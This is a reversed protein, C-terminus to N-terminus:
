IKFLNKLPLIKEYDEIKEAHPLKDLMKRLYDFPELGNAKATQILSYWMGSAVAGDVSNSFLWNKRGIAFPRIHNEILINSMNLRGDKLYNTLFDFQNLTYNVAKGGVSKPTIKGKLSELWSKLEDWIPKSEKLRIEYKQESTLDKIRKEIKYLKQFIILGKKGIGKGSSTKFANEFKRRAHDSCGLRTLNPNLCVKSYGEYGDTQLYGKFGSLLEIPVSGSRTPAYDYLIIPNNGPQYRVWMYSNTTAKKGKEKLVQVTTEDMQLYDSSLVTEQLLNYLPIVKLSVDIVWRAMTQRPIQIGYRKFIEEQRYLPLSDLYKSVIIAAMLNPTLISKPILSPPPPANHIGEKCHPCAYKKRITKLVKFKAPIFELKESTEEGIEKLPTGDVPCFKKDEPLDIIIEERPLSEPIRPKRKKNREYTIIEKDEFKDDDIKDLTLEEAENFLGLQNPSVKESKPAYNNRQLINIKDELLQIKQDRTKIKQDKTQIQQDRTKIKQDKSQIEQDRTKIKQDRAQIESIAKHNLNSIIKKLDSASDPLTNIDVM